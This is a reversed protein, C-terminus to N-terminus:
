SDLDQRLPSESKPRFFSNEDKYKEEIEEEQEKAKEEEEDEIDEADEEGTMSTPSAAVESVAVHLDQDLHKGGGVVHTVGDVVAIFIYHSHM